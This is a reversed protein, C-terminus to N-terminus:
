SRLINVWCRLDDRQSLSIKILRALREESVGMWQGGCPSRHSRQFKIDTIDDLHKKAGRKPNLPTNHFFVMLCKASLPSRWPNDTLKTGNLPTYYLVSLSVSFWLSSSTRPCSHICLNISWLGNEEKRWGPILYSLSIPLQERPWDMAKMRSAM